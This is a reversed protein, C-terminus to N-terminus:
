SSRRIAPGLDYGGRDAGETGCRKLPLRSQHRTPTLLDESEILSRFLHSLERLEGIQASDLRLRVAHWKVLTMAAAIPEPETESAGRETGRKRPM